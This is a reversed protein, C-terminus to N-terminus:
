PERSLRRELRTEDAQDSRRAAWVDETPSRNFTRRYERSFQAPSDYGVATGVEGVRGAGSLLRRRAEALRVERRYAIPTMSTLARFHRHLSTVSMGALAALDAVRLPEDYNDKIWATARGIRSLHTDGGAFGALVAGFGGQLLRYVIERGILPAMISVDAPRDLLGLLRAVAALVEEEHPRVALGFPESAKQRDPMESLVEAVLPRDLSLTLALHPVDPSAEVVCATVPLDVTAVLCQSASVEHVGDGLSVQKVGQVVVCLRPDYLSPLPATPATCNFLTLGGFGIKRRPATCHRAILDRIAVRHDSMLNM